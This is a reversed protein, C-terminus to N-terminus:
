VGDGTQCTFPVAEAEHHDGCTACEVLAEDPIGLATQVARFQFTAKARALASLLEQNSTM